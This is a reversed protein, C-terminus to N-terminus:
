IKAQTNCPTLKKFYMKSKKRYKRLETNIDTSEHVIKIISVLLLLLFIQLVFGALMGSMPIPINHDKGSTLRAMKPSVRLRVPGCIHRGLV